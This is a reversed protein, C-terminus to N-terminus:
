VQTSDLIEDEFFDDLETELEYEALWEDFPNEPPTNEEGEIPILFPIITCRCGFHTGDPPLGLLAAGVLSNIVFVRGNQRACQPCVRSDNSTLWIAGLLWNTETAERAAFQARFAAAAGHNSARMISARAVLQAQYYVGRTETQSRKGVGFLAEIRRLAQLPTETDNVAQTLQRRAKILAGDAISAYQERWEDGLLEYLAPNGRISETLAPHLVSRQVTVNDLPPMVVNYQGHGAMAMLWLRGYYGAKYATLSAEYTEYGIIDLAQRLRTECEQLVKQRWYSSASDITLREIGQRYALDQGYRRISMFADQLREYATKATKDEWRYLKKRLYTECVRGAYNLTGRPVFAQGRTAMIRKLKPKSFGSM